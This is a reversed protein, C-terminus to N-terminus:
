EVGRPVDIEGVLNRTRERSALARNQNDVSRLAYFRLSEGVDVERNVVVKLNQGNYVLYVQGARSRLFDDLFDLVYDADVPCLAGSTLAFSPMPM